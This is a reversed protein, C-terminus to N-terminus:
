LIKLTFQLARIILSESGMSQVDYNLPNADGAGTLGPSNSTASAVVYMPSIVDFVPSNNGYVMLNADTGKTYVNADTLPKYVIDTVAGLGNDIHTIVNNKKLTDTSLHLQSSRVELNLWDAQGDGNVDLFVRAANDPHRANLGM